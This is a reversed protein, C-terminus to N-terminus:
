GSRQAQQTERRGIILGNDALLRQTSPVTLYRRFQSCARSWLAWRCYRRDVISWEMRSGIASKEAGHLIENRSVAPLIGVVYALDWGAHATRYPRETAV